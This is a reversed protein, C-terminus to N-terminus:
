LYREGGAAPFSVNILLEKVFFAAGFSDSRRM